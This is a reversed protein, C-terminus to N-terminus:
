PTRWGKPFLKKQMEFCERCLMKDKLTPIVYFNCEEDSVRFIGPWQEGCLVCLNPILVYPIRPRKNVEEDSCNCYLLQEGCVPCVEMDCGPKHPQGEEVGCDHCNWSKWKKM